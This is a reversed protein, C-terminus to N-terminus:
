TAVDAFNSLCNIMIVKNVVVALLESCTEVLLSSAVDGMDNEIKDFLQDCLISLDEDLLMQSDCRLAAFVSISLHLACQSGSSLTQLLL